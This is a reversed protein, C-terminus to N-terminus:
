ARDDYSDYARVKHLESLELNLAEKREDASQCGGRAPPALCIYIYIYIYVYICVHVDRERERERERWIYIYIYINM